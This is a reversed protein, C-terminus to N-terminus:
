EDIPRLWHQEWVWSIMSCNRPYDDAAINLKYLPREDYAIDIRTVTYVKGIYYDMDTNYSVCGKKETKKGVVIVKDGVLIKGDNFKSM